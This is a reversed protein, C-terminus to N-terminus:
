YTITNFKFNKETKPEGGVVKVDIRNGKVTVDLYSMNDNVLIPYSHLSDPEALIHRHTHGSLMLSTGSEELIPFFVDRLHKDGHWTSTTPPIHLFVIRQDFDKDKVVERLWEAEVERYPDFEAIGGYEIDSDPKDEGCDLVLFNTRGVTLTNYFRGSEAPFYEFLHDAFKGRNEHNGRAYVIPTSTAFMEVCADLWGDFMSDESELSSQMDGNLLVFDYRSFDIGSLLNRIYESRGHVDNLVLFKVEKDDLSFTTFSLPDKKYVVTSAIDGLKVYDSYAWGETQQSFIRYNYKTGPKLGRIRVSHVTSLAKRRGHEADYHRKHEEGYFHEGKDETLEVWSLAPQSTEWVVTVANETMDTLWPGHTIRISERDQAPLIFVSVALLASLLAASHKM